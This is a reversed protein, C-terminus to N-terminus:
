GFVEVKVFGFRYADEGKYGAGPDKLSLAFYSPIVNTDRPKEREYIIWSQFEPYLITVNVRAFSFVDFYYDEKFLEQAAHVKMLDFCFSESEARGRTCTLEPAYLLKTTIKQAQKVSHQYKELDAEGQQYKSFFIIGISVLILFIFIVAVTETMRIQANKGCIPVKKSIGEKKTKM